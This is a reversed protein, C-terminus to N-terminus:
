PSERRMFVVKFQGPGEPCNIFDVKVGASRCSEIIRPIGSGIGRYPIEPFSEVYSLIVPNRPMKVGLKISDTTLTNPLTGPSIIEVRNDFVFIRINSRIFYNRHIIANILAEKLAIEPIELIGISNFDQGNQTKRLQRKIFSLGDSFQTTINGYINDSERYETGTIVNGYWSVAAIHHSQLEFNGKKGFLLLGGLTCQGNKMLKMNQLIQELRLEEAQHRIGLKNELFEELAFLSLDSLGTNEIVQEDAYLNASEQLLRKMEERKARRKDAGIKVWIDQGNSLYFKNRGMPVKILMVIKGDVRTNETRVELSPEVKQSCVNSVMQNLRSVDEGSLGTIEGNDSVGVLIRGGASNAFAGIEAAIADPSSFNKKFQTHSDEGLEVIDRLEQETM